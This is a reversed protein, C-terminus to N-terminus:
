AAVAQSEAAVPVFIEGANLWGQARGLRESVRYYASLAVLHVALGRSLPEGGDVVSYRPGENFLRAGDATYRLRNLRDETARVEARAALCEARLRNLLARVAPSEAPGNPM